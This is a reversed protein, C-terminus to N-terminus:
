DNNSPGEQRAHITNCHDNVPNGESNVSDHWVSAINETIITDRLRKFYSFRVIVAENKKAKWTSRLLVNFLM